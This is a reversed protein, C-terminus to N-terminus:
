VKAMFANLEQKMIKAGKDAMFVQEKLVRIREECDAHVPKLDAFSDSFKHYTAHSLLMM